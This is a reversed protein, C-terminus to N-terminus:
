SKGPSSNPLLDPYVCASLHMRAVQLRVNVGSTSPGDLMLVDDGSLQSCPRISVLVSALSSSPKRSALCVCQRFCCLGIGRHAKVSETLYRVQRPSPRSKGTSCVPCVGDTHSICGVLSLGSSLTCEAHLEALREPSFLARLMGTLLPGCIQTLAPVGPAPQYTCSRLLQM